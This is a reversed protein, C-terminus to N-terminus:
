LPTPLPFSLQNAPFRSHAYFYPFLLHHFRGLRHFWQVSVIQDSEYFGEGCLVLGELRLHFRKLGLNLRKSGVFLRASRASRPATM